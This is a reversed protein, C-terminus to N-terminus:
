VLDNMNERIFIDNDKDFHEKNRDFYSALHHLTTNGQLDQINPDGGLEM